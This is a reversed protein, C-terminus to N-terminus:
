VEETFRSSRNDPLSSPTESRTFGQATGPPSGPVTPLQPTNPVSSSPSMVYPGGTHVTPRRQPGPSLTMEEHGGVGGRTGENPSSSAGSGIGEGGYFGYSDRYFSTDSLNQGQGTLPMNPPPGRMGGGGPGSSSMGESFASPLKRGSVKQFGREPIPPPEEQSRNSHRFIGPIASALPMLGAREAMGPGRSTPPPDLDPSMTSSPPLAHHGQQSRRKYWRLFVLAILLIVALGAAGGVVGGAITGAPPTSDSDDHHQTAVASSSSSSATAPNPNAVFATSTVAAPISSGQQSSAEVLSNTTKQSDHTTVRCSGSRDCVTTVEGDALTTIYPNKARTLTAVNGNSLTVPYTSLKSRTRTNTTRRTTERTANHTTTGNELM